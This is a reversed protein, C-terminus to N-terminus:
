CTPAPLPNNARDADADDLAHLYDSFAKQGQAPTTDQTLSVLFARQAARERSAADTRSTLSDRFASNLQSQCVLADQVERQERVYTILYISQGIIALFLVAFIAIEVGQLSVLKRIM